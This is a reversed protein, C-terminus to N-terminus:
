FPDAPQADTRAPHTRQKTRRIEKPLLAFAISGAILPLLLALAILEGALAVSRAATAAVFVIVSGIVNWTLTSHELRLGRRLLRQGKAASLNLDTVGGSAHAGYHQNSM